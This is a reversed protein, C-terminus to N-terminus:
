DTKMSQRKLLLGYELLAVPENPMPQTARELAKQAEVRELCNASAEDARASLLAGQRLFAPGFDPRAKTLSRLEALAATTDGAELKSLAAAFEAPEGPGASSVGQACAAGRPWWAGVLAGLLLLLGRTRMTTM